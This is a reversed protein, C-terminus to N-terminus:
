FHEGGAAAQRLGKHGAGRKASGFITRASAGLHHADNSTLRRVEQANSSHFKTATRGEFIIREWRKCDPFATKLLPLFGESIEVFGRIRARLETADFVNPDGALAYNDATIMLAARPAPWRDVWCVGNGTNLVHLGVLPGAREPLFWDKLSAAQQPSLAIM